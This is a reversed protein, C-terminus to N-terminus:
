SRYDMIIFLTCFIRVSGNVFYIMIAGHLTYVNNYTEVINLIKDFSEDTTSISLLYRVDNEIARKIVDKLNSSMPEYELHCHSDIIM